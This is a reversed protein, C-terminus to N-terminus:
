MYIYIYIHVRLYQETYPRNYQTTTPSTCRVLNNTGGEQAGLLSLRYPVQMDNQVLVVQTIANAM